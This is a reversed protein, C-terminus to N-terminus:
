KEIKGKRETKGHQVKMPRRMTRGTKSDSTLWVYDALKKNLTTRETLPYLVITATKVDVRRLVRDPIGFKNMIHGNGTFVVMKGGHAKIYAAITEAMTEDWVCQAQYFHDFTKVRHMPNKKFPHQKFIRSLHERHAKNGLDIDRAVQNREESTLSKLGSRAVKKVVANPANIGLLATGKDQSVWLIPRYLHYPFRWSNKWDVQELFATEDLDGNMFQDLVPQRTTDFFEMAVAPPPVYRAMLAQLLQVQILHHEPNNHVEGVFIVDVPKLKEILDTFGIAEGAELDIIRGQSFHRQIGEVTSLPPMVHKKPACAQFMMLLVTIAVYLGFKRLTGSM